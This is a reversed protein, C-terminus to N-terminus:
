LGAFLDTEVENNAPPPISRTYTESAFLLREFRARLGRSPEGGQSRHCASARQKVVYYPRIDVRAHVPSQMELIEYLDIDQNRGFKHPDRGIVPLLRVVFKLWGASFTTFYLRDPRHPPGAEPFRTGDAAAAFAQVTAQHLKIHDPHGYGGHENDCLVVQPCHRRISTVIEGTIKELPAQVLSDPHLNDPTGAMGSDRYGLWDIGRLGLEQAACCLEAARLQSTSAYGALMDADVTGANGDTACVLWVDAGEAAYRAITGGIGFSEDDPHAFVCLLTRRELTTPVPPKM